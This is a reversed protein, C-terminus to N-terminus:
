TREDSVPSGNAVGTASIGVPSLAENLPIVRVGTNIGSGLVNASAPKPMAAM